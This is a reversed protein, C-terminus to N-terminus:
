KGTGSIRTRMEALDSRLDALTKSMTEFDRAIAGIESRQRSLADVDARLADLQRREAALDGIAPSAERSRLERLQTTLADLSDRQVQWFAGLSQALEYRTVPRSGKFTGDPYGKLINLRYLNSVAAHAWHDRPVDSPAQALAAASVAICAVTALTRM